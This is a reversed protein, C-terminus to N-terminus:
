AKFRAYELAASDDKLLISKFRTARSRRADGKCKSPRFSTGMFRLMALPHAMPRMRATRTMGARAWAAWCAAAGGAALGRGAVLDVDIGGCQVLQLLERADPRLDGLSGRSGSAFPIELFDLVRSPGRSRCFTKRFIFSWSVTQAIKRGGPTRRGKRGERGFPPRGVRM